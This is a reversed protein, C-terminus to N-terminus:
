KKGAPYPDTPVADKPRQFFLLDKKTDYDASLIHGLEHSPAHARHDRARPVRSGAETGM